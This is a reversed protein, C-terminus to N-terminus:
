NAQRRSRNVLVQTGDMLLFNLYECVRKRSHLVLSFGMTFIIEYDNPRKLPFPLDEEGRTLTVVARSIYHPNNRNQGSFMSMIVSTPNKDPDPELQDTVKVDIRWHMGLPELRKQYPELTEWLQDAVGQEHQRLEEATINKVAVKRRTRNDIIIGITTALVISALFFMEIVAMIIRAGTEDLLGLLTGFILVLLAAPYFIYWIVGLVNVGGDVRVHAFMSLIGPMSPWKKEVLNRVPFLLAFQRDSLKVRYIAPRISPLILGLLAFLIFFGINDRLLEIGTM